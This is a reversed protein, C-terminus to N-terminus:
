IVYLQLRLRMHMNIKICKFFLRDTQKSVSGSVVLNSQPNFNCCFVYNSHGKLTKLCKGKLLMVFFKPFFSIHIVGVADSYISYINYIVYIYILNVSSMDWIKLTKDDSASALLNSDSSWAVDSIGQWICCLATFCM